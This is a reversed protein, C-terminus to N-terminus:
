NARGLWIVDKLRSAQLQDEVTVRKILDPSQPDSLKLGKDYLRRATNLMVAAECETMSHPGIRIFTYYEENHHQHFIADPKSDYLVGDSSGDQLACAIWKKVSGYPDGVRHLNYTDRIRKVADEHPRGTGSLKCWREHWQGAGYTM